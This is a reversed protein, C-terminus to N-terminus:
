SAVGGPPSLGGVAGAGDEAPGAPAKEPEGDPEEPEKEARPLLEEESMTRVCLARLGLSYNVHGVFRRRYRFNFNWAEEDGRRDVSWPCCGSLSIPGVVKYTAGSWLSRISELENLTPLRWDEFGGLRLNQCHEVAQQWRVDAANDHRRWMLGHKLDRYTETLRQQREFDLLSRVMKIQVERESEERVTM